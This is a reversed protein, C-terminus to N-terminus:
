DGSANAKAYDDPTDIDLAGEPCDILVSEAAHSEILGKCGAAPPLQLLQPFLERTFLAPVGAIGSYSAAVIPKRTQQHTAILTNLIQPGVLPQDALAIIVADFNAAAELGARISTGMGEQWNPNEVLTLFSAPSVVKACSDLACQGVVAANAGLVVFVQEANSALAQEVAHRILPRGKYPLLQKPSGMRTSAGAALIIVGVRM